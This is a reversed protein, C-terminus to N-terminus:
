STTLIIADFAADNSAVQSVARKWNKQAAVVCYGGQIFLLDLTGVLGRRRVNANATRRTRRACSIRLSRRMTSPIPKNKTASPPAKSASRCWCTQRTPFSTQASPSLKARTRPHRASRSPEVHFVLVPASKLGTISTLACPHQHHPNRFYNEM